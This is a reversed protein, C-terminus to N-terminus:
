TTKAKRARLPPQGTAEIVSRWLVGGLKVKKRSAVAAPIPVHVYTNNWQGILLDTKGAMAAHVAKQGLFGCYVRDSANAPQSRILYSPDMYKLNIELDKKKFHEKIRDCLYVGIDGLRRNGSPDYAEPRDDFFKQGAGEAVVIVAHGRKGLREELAELLGGQGDLDFDSEPILVFNAEGQALAATASIFGSERGMLKVVGLGNPAGLAETHASRIVKAATDVATEFGFSRSVLNIDNDITKPVGVLAIKLGRKKIEEAVLHAGRLTGDGGITFLMSINLRELSDVIEEVSYLGRSSSLVSGGFEHIDSVVEPSLEVLSHGFRPILGQYGHRVGFINRVGYLFHLTLTISRIVDNLGPCLGGATLVAAKVKVPDFYIKRRPGAAEFSLPPKRTQCHKLFSDLAVDIISRCSEEVFVGSCETEDEGPQYHVLLPSDIKAPGLSEIETWECDIKRTMAM